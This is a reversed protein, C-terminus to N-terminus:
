RAAAARERLFDELGRLHARAVRGLWELNKLAAEQEPVMMFSTETLVAPM